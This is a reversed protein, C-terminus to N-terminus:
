GQSLHADGKQGGFFSMADGDEVDQPRDVVTVIKQLTCVADQRLVMQRALVDLSVNTPDWDCWGEIRVKYYAM